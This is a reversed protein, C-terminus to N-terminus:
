DRRFSVDVRGVDRFPDVMAVVFEPPEFASWSFVRHADGLGTESGILTILFGLLYLIDPTTIAEQM